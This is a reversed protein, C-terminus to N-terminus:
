VLVRREECLNRPLLLMGDGDDAKCAIAIDAVGVVTAVDFFIAVYFLGFIDFTYLGNKRMSVRCKESVCVTYNSKTCQIIYIEM